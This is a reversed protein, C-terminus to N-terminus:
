VTGDPLPILVRLEFWGNVAEVAMSGGYKKATNQISKLGFGHFRKNSKTTKPLDGEFMVDGAYCNEVRIRLCGRQKAVSVHILRKEEDALKNVNEIANDLANGFLTSIDMVDMFDLATGDAVCTMNIGNNQCYLSKTTLVTDLVQNGTKNQAEYAKIDQEMRDLYANKKETSTEARLVAIQHKLDHYKQNILDVAQQSMQYNGYQLRLMNQLADVERRAQLGTIQLHYAYLIAVGGLLSITRVNLADLETTAVFTIKVPSFYLTSIIYVAYTIIGVTIFSHFDVQLTRSDSRHRYELLYMLLYVILYVVAANITRPLTGELPYRNYTIYVHLQWALSAAFNFLCFARGCFYGAKFFDVECCLWLMLLMALAWVIVLLNYPVGTFMDTFFMLASFVALSAASIVATAWVKFRPKLIIIYLLCALWMSAAKFMTPIDAFDATIM